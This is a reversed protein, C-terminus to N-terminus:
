RPLGAEVSLLAMRALEVAERLLDSETDGSPNFEEHEPDYQGSDIYDDRAAGAAIAEGWLPTAAIRRVAALLEFVADPGVLGQPSSRTSLAEAPVHPHNEM